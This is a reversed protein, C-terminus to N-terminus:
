NVVFNFEPRSESSKRLYNFSLYNEILAEQEQFWDAFSLPSIVIMLLVIIKKM